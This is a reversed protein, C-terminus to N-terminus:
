FSFAYICHGTGTGSLSDAKSVRITFGNRVKWQIHDLLSHDTTPKGYMVNLKEVISALTVINAEYVIKSSRKDIPFVGDIDKIADYVENLLPSKSYAM